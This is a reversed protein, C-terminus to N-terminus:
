VNNYMHIRITVYKGINQMGKAATDSREVYGHKEKLSPHKWFCRCRVWVVFFLMIHKSSLLSWSSQYSQWALRSPTSCWFSNLVADVALLPFSHGIAHGRGKAATKPVIVLFCLMEFIQQCQRVTCLHKLKWCSPCSCRCWAASVSFFSDESSGVRVDHEISSASTQPVLCRRCVYAGIMCECENAHYVAYECFIHNYTYWYSASMSDLKKSRM